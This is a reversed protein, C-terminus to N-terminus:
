VADVAQKGEHDGQNMNQMESSLQLRCQGVQAVIQVPISEAIMALQHKVEAVVDM